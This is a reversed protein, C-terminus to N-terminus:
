NDSKIIKVAKDIYLQSDYNKTNEKIFYDIHLGKRQVREGNPYFAGAGTFYFEQKDPLIASTINMVAGMTQEGITICNPAQQIAMGFYEAMSGTQRNVLLIIKGKFYNSNKKGM